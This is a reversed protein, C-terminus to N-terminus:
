DISDNSSIINFRNNNTTFYETNLPNHTTRCIVYYPVRLTYKRSNSIKLGGDGVTEDLERQRASKLFIVGTGETYSYLSNTARCISPHKRNASHLSPASPFYPLFLCSQWSRVKGNILADFSKM